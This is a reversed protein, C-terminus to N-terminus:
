VSARMRRWRLMWSYILTMFGLFWAVALIAPIRNTSVAAPPITAFPSNVAFPASVQEIVFSVAVPTIALASPRAFHSGADMLISFPILFKISAALCLL